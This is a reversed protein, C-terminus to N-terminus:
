PTVGGAFESATQEWGRLLPRAALAQARWDARLRPDTLWRRLVHALEDPDDPDVTAGPLGGGSALAEEAGTGRGVVAPIGRALAETVVMGWTEVQAPHLLLSGTKLVADLESGFLVGLIRARSPLARAVLGGYASDVVPGILSARWPLGACATLAQAVALQNKLETIAGVTLLHPPEGSESVPAPEVGPPIARVDPRRHRAIVDAATTHSTAVVRWAARVGRGEARELRVRRAEDLSGADALPLHVLLVVRRGSRTADEILDPQAAGVLGDLITTDFRALAVQLASASAPDGEPWPGDLEVVEPVSLGAPWHRLVAANYAHGGSPHVPRPLVFGVSV